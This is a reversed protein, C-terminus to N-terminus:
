SQYYYGLSLLIGFSLHLAASLGLIENYVVGPEQTWVGHMIKSGLPLTIFPLFGALWQGESAWLIGLLFPVIVCFTIEIRSFKKGFRVALTKKNAKRDQNVDRLNNVAIMVTALLGIQTGALISLFSVSGTQLYYVTITSVWGFFILVFLDGLGTYALPMPGGTYLYACALSILLILVLPIGGKLILPIGCVAALGLCAMGGALVHESDLLGSQTVRKPGLREETDAGKKFDLSDNILNTAIQIFFAALLAFIAISWNVVPALLTGVMIPVFAATLTKPRTALIWTAATM